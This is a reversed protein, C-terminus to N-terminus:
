HDTHRRHSHTSSIKPAPTMPCLPHTLLCIQGIVVNELQPVSPVGRCRSEWHKRRMQAQMETNNVKWTM